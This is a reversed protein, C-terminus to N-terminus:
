SASATQELGGTRRNQQKIYADRSAILHESSLVVLRERDGQRLAEIMKWHDQRAGELFGPITMSQSRIAHARQAGLDIMETLTPSNSLAFFAKHFAINARFAIRLNSEAVATDHRQQLAILEGIKEPAVPMAIQRVCNVELIERATYLDIVQEITYSKVLAGINKKREVLGMKELDQLVQRVVHRKLGFRSRLDDEILRERPHLYGFVIDEELTAVVERVLADVDRERTPQAGGMESTGRPESLISM